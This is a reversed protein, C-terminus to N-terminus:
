LEPHFLTRSNLRRRKSTILGARSEESQNYSLCAAELVGIPSHPVICSKISKICGSSLENVLEM